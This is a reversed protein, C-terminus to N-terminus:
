VRGTKAGWRVWQVRRDCPIASWTGDDGPADGRSGGGGGRRGDRGDTGRVGLSLPASDSGPVGPAGFPALGKRKGDEDGDEAGDSADGVGVGVCAGVAGRSGADEGTPPSVGNLAVWDGAGPVPTM